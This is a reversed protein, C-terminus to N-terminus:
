SGPSGPPVQAVAQESVLSQGSPKSHTSTPVSCSLCHTGVSRNQTSLHLVAAQEVSWTQSLAVPLQRTGSPSQSTSQRSEAMHPPASSRQTVNGVVPSAMHAVPHSGSAASGQGVAKVHTWSSSPLEAHMGSERVQTSRQASTM